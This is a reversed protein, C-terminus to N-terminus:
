VAVTWRSRLAANTLRTDPLLFPLVYGNVWCGARSSLFLCAGAVDEASGIRALPVGAVVLDGAAALTAAMMKSQFPGCALTNSTIGKPGLQAAFVRSLQHLAAKSASDACRTLRAIM